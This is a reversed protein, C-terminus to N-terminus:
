IEFQVTRQILSTTLSDELETGTWFISCARWWLAQWGSYIWHKRFDNLTIFLFNDEMYTFLEDNQLREITCLMVSRKRFVNLVRNGVALDHKQSPSGIKISSVHLKLQAEIRKVEEWNHFELCFLYPQIKENLVTFVADPKISGFETAIKTAAQRGKLWEVSKGAFYMDFELPMLGARKLQNEIQIRMRICEVRHSYDTYFLKSGLPLQIESPSWDQEKVLYNKGRTKLFYIDAVKGHEPHYGFKKQGVFSVKRDTLWKMIHTFHNRSVQIGVEHFLARTLFKHRALQELIKIDISKM